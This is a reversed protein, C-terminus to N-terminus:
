PHERMPFAQTSARGFQFRLIWADSTQRDREESPTFEWQQAAKLALNAFYKSPGPSVLRASKVKGSPDVEVRVKVPITGHITNRANKPVEPIVRRVVESPPAATKRSPADAKAGTTPRSVPPASVAPQEETTSSAPMPSRDSHMFLKMGIVAAVLLLLAAPVLTRMGFRRKAISTQSRTPVLTSDPQLQTRIGAISRRQQPNHRLCDRAISRFPEPINEPVAPDQELQRSTPAHQTLVAVLTIGLSWVDSASSIKEAALEPASYVNPKVGVLTSPDPTSISEASLKVQNNVAFINSPQIHGHVLGQGHVYNLADLVPPLLARTEAPTLPRHPLIQSLDEEAYETVLFLLTTGDVECHGVELIRILHPHSRRAAARWRSLQADDSVRAAVLKIAVRRPQPGGLETLFVASHDSGGLWKRLPFRGDVVRGEWAKWLAPNAM